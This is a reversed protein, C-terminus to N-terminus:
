AHKAFHADVVYAYKRCGTLILVSSIDTDEQDDVAELNHNRSNNCCRSYRELMMRLLMHDQSMSPVNHRM